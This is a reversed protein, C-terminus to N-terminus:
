IFAQNLEYCAVPPGVETTEEVGEKVKRCLLTIQHTRNGAGNEGSVLTVRIHTCDEETYLSTNRDQRVFKLVECTVDTVAM